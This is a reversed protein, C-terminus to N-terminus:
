AQCPHAQSMNPLPQRQEITWKAYIMYLPKAAEDSDHDTTFGFSCTCLVNTSILASAIRVDPTVIDSESMNLATVLTERLLRLSLGTEFDEAAGARLWAESAGETLATLSISPEPTGCRCLSAASESPSGHPEPVMCRRARGPGLSLCLFFSFVGTPPASLAKSATGSSRPSPNAALNVRSIMTDQVETLWYKSPMKSSLTPRMGYGRIMIVSMMKILMKAIVCVLKEAFSATTAIVSGDAVMISCETIKSLRLFPVSTADMEAKCSLSWSFFILMSKPVWSNLPERATTFSSKLLPHLKGSLMQLLM